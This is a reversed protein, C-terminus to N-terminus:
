LLPQVRLPACINDSAQLSQPLLVSLELHCFEFRCANIKLSRRRIMSSPLFLVRELLPNQFITPIALNSSAVEQDWVLRSSRVVSCGSVKLPLYGRNEPLPQLYLSVNAFDPLTWLIEKPFSQLGPIYLPAPFLAM